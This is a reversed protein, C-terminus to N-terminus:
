YSQSTHYYGGSRPSSQYVDTVEGRPSYSFWEDVVLNNRGNCASNTYAAIMRGKGNLVTVGSPATGTDYIYGRCNNSATTNAGVLRNRRDYANCTFVQANDETAALNGPFSASFKCGTPHADWFYNFTGTEPDMESTMRGMLDYAFSRTQTSGSPQANQTVTLLHGLGDYTYKTLYGNQSVGQGCSAAGPLSSSIECVSTLRGLGDYEFQKQFTQSGSVKKLVDNNTYTFSITGGDGKTITLVRGLADFTKTTVPASSNPSSPSGAASYPLTTRDAQGTSNYDVEITDYDTAGPGQRKQMFAPRGYGDVTTLVDSVSGGSNFSLSSEVSTAGHYSITTANSEQDTTQTPRWFNPDTFSATTLNGNEDTVQTSVGGTCNWVISRSLGLPEEILTPFSNGCSSSGYVYTTVPGNAGTVTNPTGTDYYTYNYTLPGFLNGTMYTANTLNGNGGSITVHQPTSSTTTTAVGDYTFTASSLKSATASSGNYVVQTAVESAIGSTTVGNFSTTTESIISAPSPAAGLAVGYNYEKDDTVLGFTNYQVESLRASGNPLERYTDV